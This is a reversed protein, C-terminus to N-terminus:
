GCVPLSNYVEKSIKENMYTTNLLTGNQFRDCNLRQFDFLGLSCLMCVSVCLAFIRGPKAWHYSISSALVCWYMPDIWTALVDVEHVQETTRRVASLVGNAAGMFRYDSCTTVKVCKACFMTWWLVIYIAWMIWLGLPELIKEMVWDVVTLAVGPLIRHIIPKVCIGAFTLCAGAGAIFVEISIRGSCRLFLFGIFLFVSPKLAQLIEGYPINVMSHWRNYSTSLTTLLFVHKYVCSFM